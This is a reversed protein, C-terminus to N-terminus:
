IHYRYGDRFCEKIRMLTACHWQDIEQFGYALLFKFLLKDKQIIVSRLWNTKQMEILEWLEDNQKDSKWTKHTENKWNM